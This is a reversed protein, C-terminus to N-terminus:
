QRGDLDILTLIAHTVPYKAADTVRGFLGVLSTADGPASEGAFRDIGTASQARRSRYLLVTIVAGVVFIGASWWYTVAYSHLQAHAAVDLTRPKGALYATAASAAISNLLATGIAGGIQQMTNVAASAVGSDADDVGMTAVSMATPMVLGLGFGAVMLPPLIHAAYSSHIGLGTLWVMAIAAAVMGVTVVVKPGIRPVLVSTSLASAVLLVGIMPLFAVGTQVPSYRLTEELYYTLFLFVGFVGTSSLFTALFSAGRDRDLLIRLPVIPNAVRTASWVFAVLLVGGAALFGWAMPSGWSHSDANSFGYVIAFLSASILLTGVLDLKPRHEAPRHRLLALGGVTVIVAFILNVYLTWRWSLHETLMGGLLMGIASGSGAVAGYVGFAKAREKVDTFTTMLLSLAAPALLAAFVGQLARGGALMLFNQAAGGLASAGAFGIAGILLTSKRGVLDAIRGGLPLLAGFALAYATVIWQRNNDSFGLARQADPLAINVVTLDLVIMLQAITIVALILWRRAHHPNDHRVPDARTAELTTM